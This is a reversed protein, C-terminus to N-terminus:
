GNKVKYDIPNLFQRRYIRMMEFTNNSLVNKLTSCSNLPNDHFFTRTPTTPTTQSLYSGSVSCVCRHVKLFLRLFNTRIEWASSELWQFRWTEHKSEKRNFDHFHWPNGEYWLHLSQYHLLCILGGKVFRMLGRKKKVKGM